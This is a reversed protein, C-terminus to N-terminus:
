RPLGLNSRQNPFSGQLLSQSGGAIRSVQTRDRAEIGPKPLDGPPPFPFGSWHEQRSFGMYPPAQRAVTRPTVTLRVCSFRNLVCVPAETRHPRRSLLSPAGPRLRPRPDAPDRPPPRRSSMRTKTRHYVPPCRDSAQPPM